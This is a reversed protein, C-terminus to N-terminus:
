PVFSQQALKAKSKLPYGLMQACKKVLGFPGADVGVRQNSWPKSRFPGAGDLALIQTSPHRRQAAIALQNCEDDPLSHCLVVLDFDFNMAMAIAESFRGAAKVAFYTGLIWERTRLLSEDPSVVLITAASKM